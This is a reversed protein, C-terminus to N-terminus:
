HFEPCFDQRICSNCQSWFGGCKTSATSPARGRSPISSTTTSRPTIRTAMRWAPLLMLTGSLRASISTMMDALLATLSLIKWILLVKDDYQNFYVDHLHGEPGGQYIWDADHPLWVWQTGADNFGALGRLALISLMTHAEEFNIGKTKNQKKFLKVVVLARLPPWQVHNINEDNCEVKPISHSYKLSIRRHKSQTLSLSQHNLGQSVHM